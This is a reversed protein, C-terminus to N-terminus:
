KDGFRYPAHCMEEVVDAPLLKERLIREASNHSRDVREFAEQVYEPGVESSYRGIYEGPISSSTKKLVFAEIEADATLRVIQNTEDLEIVMRHQKGM